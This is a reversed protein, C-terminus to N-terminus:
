GGFQHKHLSFYTGQKQLLEAHRGQEVIKGDSLVVIRDANQITSLRHAIVFTTRGEMLQDLAQQVLKESESDLSSTAEDLILIPTNKFLARAISLRQREGGSLLAGRDGVVAEEKNQLRQVFNEANAASLAEKIKQPNYNVQGAIINERITENFLFVDQTVLGINARLDQTSFDRVDVGDILIEGITVDYFRPLLNVLTTKGGGSGGVIALVEGRNVKLNIGKLVEKNGYSFHVNKYEITKWNPDWNKQIREVEYPEKVTIPSDLVEFVRQTSAIAHQLRVHADQLKKIPGQMSGLVFVYSMFAGVTNNGKIAESGAYFLIGGFTMAALLEFVPGSIEERMLIKKRTAVMQGLINQFKDKMHKELTFAKIVRIGDLTEKLTLMINEMIYQQIHSYKRVSKGLSRSAAILIPASFFTILTLKWDVYFLYGLMALASIPERIIDAMLGLGQQISIVDHITKSMLAGSSNGTHFDLSMHAFHAQLKSRIDFGIKETTLKLYFMHIFRIVGSVLYIAVIAFPALLLIEKRKQVFVEDIILQVLRATGITVGSLLIGLFLTAM